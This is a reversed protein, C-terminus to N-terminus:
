QEFEHRFKEKLKLWYSSQRCVKKFDSKNKLLTKVIEELFITNQSGKILITSDQLLNSNNKIFKTAQWWFTFKHSKAGFYKKTEPGVSIILDAVTFAQQYIKQHETKSGSGLERMDGIIAIKPSPFTALFNLMELCALPSSNYSSDILNSNKIGQLVSSRSPPLAFNAKINKVLISQDLGLYQGLALAAGFSVNYVQPLYTNPISISVPSISIINKNHTYKKVLPDSRNIIAVQSHNVLKAKETAIQNINKFNHIHVPTVNLFIGIDPKAVSLLFDMNKPFVPSDIGMELLLVDYSKWNTILKVPALLAIKFWSSLNYNSIQLGLISLPLGSESNFGNNTKVKFNPKLAAKCILLASSKGASGTIGVIKLDKNKFKQLFRVKQIQLRAFLRLYKLFLNAITM